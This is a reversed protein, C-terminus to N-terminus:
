RPAQKNKKKKSSRKKALTRFEYNSMDQEHDACRLHVMFINGAWSWVEENKEIRKRCLNCFTKYRAKTRRETGDMGLVTM